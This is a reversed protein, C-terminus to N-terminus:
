WRIAVDLTAGSSPKDGIHAGLERTFIAFGLDLFLLRAGVGMTIYGQNLGGAVTFISLLKLEAGVHLLPWVASEGSLAGICDYLDVSLSPDFAQSFSGLDPHLAVGLIVNMPITYQDATVLNGTSPFGFQTIVSTWLDGFSSTSYRFTTGFLDRISLGVNVWGIEMIAGLDMGIGVGYLADASTIAKLIDASTAVATLMAMATSSELPAHIRVMPRVDGGVHLTAGLVDFTMSLGGIFGITATLDGSMGMLTEGSLLSDAIVVVGLGLGNGVYGIGFSAGAGIGGSTVQDNLFGVLDSTSGTGAIYKQALGFVADPRAYVWAGAESLTLSGSGRSYGAPNFFLSDYGEVDAVLSGGRGMVDPSVPVFATEVYDVAFVPAAIVVAALVALIRKKM